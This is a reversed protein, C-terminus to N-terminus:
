CAVEANKRYYFYWTVAICTVYFAVFTMLATQPGGTAGISYKYAQPILFGGYAGIAGAFGLVFSGEKQGLRAAQARAGEDEAAERVRETRFISPIMRYTSGNGIGATLFLVMFSLFFGVLSGAALSYLATVVGLAMAIFNWFTM